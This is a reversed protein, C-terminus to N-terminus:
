NEEIQASLAFLRLANETSAQAMEDASIGKVRALAEVILPIYAPENRRGRHPVPTLFPADTEVLIRDLPTIAAARRMEDANKFTIPGTFGLYFGLEVAREAQNVSGSFSHLVGPRSRLEAPLSLVWDALLTLMDETAERNHLIVPLKHDAALQLQAEFALWQTERPSKNWYYDLGIEGVAVVRTRQLRMVIAEYLADDWNATDNPHIGVAAYIGPHAQALALAEDCAQLDVGPVIIRTVGAKAARDIVIERDDDFSAFNLHCHTDISPHM